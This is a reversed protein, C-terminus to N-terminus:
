GYTGSNYLTIEYTMIPQNNQKNIEPNSELDMLIERFHAPDSYTLNM